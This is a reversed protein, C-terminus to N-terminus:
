QVFMQKLISQPIVLNILEVCDIDIIKFNKHKVEDMIENFLTSRHDKNIKWTSRYKRNDMNILVIEISNTLEIDHDISNLNLQINYFKEEEM